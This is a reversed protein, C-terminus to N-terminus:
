DETIKYIKSFVYKLKNPVVFNQPLNVLVYRIAIPKIDHANIILETDGDENFNADEYSNDIDFVFISDRSGEKRCVYLDVAMLSNKNSKPKPYYHLLTVGMIPNDQNGKIAQYRTIDVVKPKLHKNNCSALMLTFGIAIGLLIHKFM